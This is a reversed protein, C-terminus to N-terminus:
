SRKKLVERYINFLNDINKEMSYKKVVLNRGKTGMEEIKQPSGL